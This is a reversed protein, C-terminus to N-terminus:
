LKNLELRKKNVPISKLIPIVPSLIHMNLIKIIIALNDEALKKKLDVYIGLRRHSNKNGEKM